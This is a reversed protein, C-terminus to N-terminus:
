GWVIWSLKVITLRFYFQAHQLWAVRRNFFYWFYFTRKNCLNFYVSSWTVPERTGRRGKNEVGPTGEGGAKDGERSSAPVSRRAGGTFASMDQTSSSSSLLRESSSVGGFEVLHTEPLRRLDDNTESLKEDKDKEDENKEPFKGTNYASPSSIQREAHRKDKDEDDRSKNSTVSVPLSM